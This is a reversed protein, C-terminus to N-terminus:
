LQEWSCVDRSLFFPETAPDTPLAPSNGLPMGAGALHARKARWLTFLPAWQRPLGAPESRETEVAVRHHLYEPETQSPSAREGNLRM